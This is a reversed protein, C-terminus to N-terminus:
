DFGRLIGGCIKEFFTNVIEQWPALILGASLSLAL